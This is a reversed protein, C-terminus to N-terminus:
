PEVRACQSFLMYKKAGNKYLFCEYLPQFCSVIWNESRLYKYELTYLPSKNINSIHIPIIM